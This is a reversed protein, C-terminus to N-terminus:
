TTGSSYERCRSYLRVCPQHQIFIQQSFSYLILFLFFQSFAQSLVSSGSTVVEAQTTLSPKGSSIVNGSVRSSWFLDARHVTHLPAMWASWLTPDGRPPLSNTFYACSSFGRASSACPPSLPLWLSATPCRTPDSPSSNICFVELPKLCPFLIIKWFRKVNQVPRGPLQTLASQLWPPTILLIRESTNGGDYCSSILPTPLISVTPVSLICLPLSLYSKIISGM